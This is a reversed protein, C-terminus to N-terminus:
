EDSPAFTIFLTHLVKVPQGGIKGPVFRAQRIVRLAEEDCGGGIGRVVRPDRVTGREDVVFQVYVRGSLGDRHAAEPYRVKQHLAELGGHLQPAEDVVKYVGEEARPTNLVRKKEDAAKRTAALQQQVYADDPKFTLAQRYSELAEEYSGKAALADGQGRFYQYQRDSHRDAALLSDARAIGARAEQSGPQLDLARQFEAKAEACRGENCLRAGRELHRRVLAERDEQQVLADIEALRATAYDNEPLHTLALRFKETAGAYDGKRLLEDGQQRYSNYLQHRVSAPDTQAEQAAHERNTRLAEDMGDATRQGKELVVPDNPRYKLAEYYAKNAEAFFSLSPLADGAALLGDALAYLSDGEALHQAYRLQSVEALRQQTEDLRDTVYRDDPQAALAREYETKAAAYNAQAYLSDGQAKFHAFQTLEGGDDQMVMYAGSLAVLVVMALAALVPVGKRKPPHTGRVTSMAPLVKKKKEGRRSAAPAPAAQEQEVPAVEEPAAATWETTAPASPKAEIAAPEAASWSAEALMSDEAPSAEVTEATTEEFVAEPTEETVEVSEEAGFSEQTTEEFAAVAPPAEPAAATWEMAVPAPQEAEIAAAETAETDDTQAASATEEAEPAEEIPVAPEEPGVAEAQAEAPQAEAEPAAREQLSDLLMQQFVQVSRPRRAVDLSLAQELLVQLAKPLAEAQRLLAPADDQERRQPASPLPQGTLARYLTAACGYLDTWPGRQGDVDYQEPASFGDEVLAAQDGTRLALMIHATRFGRLLPGSDKTLFIAEPSVAGHILGHQHAAHLADLVPMLVSLLTRLPLGGNQKELVSALTAGAHHDLVRYATNHAEFCAVERVLNPHDVVTLVTAEKLFQERGYRFLEDQAGELIEVRPSGEARVALSTPFYEYLDVQDETKLDWAQYRNVLSSPADLARGIVYREDLVTLRPLVM